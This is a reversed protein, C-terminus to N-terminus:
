CTVSADDFIDIESRDIFIWRNNIKNLSLRYALHQPWRNDINLNWLVYFYRCDILLISQQYILDITSAHWRSDIYSSNLYICWRCDIHLISPQHILNITSVHWQYDLYALHWYIYWQCDIHLISQWYLILLRHDRISM